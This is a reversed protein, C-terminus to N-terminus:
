ELIKAQELAVKITHLSEEIKSLRDHVTSHLDDRLGRIETIMVDQKTLSEKHMGLSERHLGIAEKQLDITTKQMDITTQQMDVTKLQLDRMEVLIPVSKAMQEMQLDQSFSTLPLIQGAYPQITIDHIIASEPKIAQINQILLNIKEEDGEVYIIVLEENENSDNFAEFYLLRLKKAYQLLILRFGVEHVRSGAITIQSQMRIGVYERSLLYPKAGYRM